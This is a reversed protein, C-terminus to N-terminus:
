LRDGGGAAQGTRAVPMTMPPMPQATQATQATAYGHGNGNKVHALDEHGLYTIAMKRAVYDAISTVMKIQDHGEVISAPEFRTHLFNKIYAELPVHHQLGISVAIAFLNGLAQLTSGQHALELSFRAPDAM